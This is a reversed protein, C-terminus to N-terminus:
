FKSVMRIGLSTPIVSFRQADNTAINVEKEGDEIVELHLTEFFMGAKEEIIGIIAEVDKRYCKAELKNLKELKLIKRIGSSLVFGKLYAREVNPFLRTIKKVAQSSIREGIKLNLFAMKSNVKLKNEEIDGFSIVDNPNTEFVAFLCQLADFHILIEQLVNGTAREVKLGMGDLKHFNNRIQHIQFVSISPIRLDLVRLQDNSRSYLVQLKLASAKSSDVVKLHELKLEHIAKLDHEGINDISVDLRKLCKLNVIVKFMNPTVKTNAMCLNVLKPQSQVARIFIDENLPAFLWLQLQFLQMHRLDPLTDNPTKLNITLQNTTPFQAVVSSDQTDCELLRFANSDLNEFVERLAPNVDNLIMEHLKSLNLMRSNYWRKGSLPVTVFRVELRKLNPTFTLM